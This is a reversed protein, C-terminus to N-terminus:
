VDFSTHGHEGNGTHWWVEVTNTKETWHFTVYSDVFPPLEIEHRGGNSDYWWIYPPKPNFGFKGDKGYYDVYQILSKLKEVPLMETPTVNDIVGSQNDVPESPNVQFDEKAM